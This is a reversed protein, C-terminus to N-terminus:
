ISAHLEQLRNKVKELRGRIEGWDLSTPMPAHLPQTATQPAPQGAMLEQRLEQHPRQQLLTSAGKVTYQRERLLFYILELRQLDDQTYSRRGSSTKKSALPGFHKDWFRLVSPKEGLHAAAEGISYYRKLIDEDPEEDAAPQSM